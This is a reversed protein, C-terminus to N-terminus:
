SLRTGEKLHEAVSVPCITGDLTEASLLMGESTGFRMKRPALNSVVLVKHNVIEEPKVWERIGSFIQRTGLEGMSVQLKLLKDSGEVLEANVVTGVRIEVRAFDEIAILSSAKGDKSEGSPPADTGAKPAKPKKNKETPEAAQGSAEAPFKAMELEIDIRDYLRPATGFQYGVRTDYFRTLNQLSGKLSSTNEGLSELLTKMKEPFFAATLFGVIRLVGVSHALVNELRIKNEPTEVKLLSWPKQEAIYKDTLGILEWIKQLADSLRYEDFATCVYPVLQEAQVALLKESEMLFDKHFPPIRKDCYKELMGLTRSLLNGIGNALDANFRELASRITVDLDEGPNAGRFIINTFTDAGFPLFDDPSVVNGLSKSMKHGGSLLWGTVLLKPVKIKLSLCIAPWFIGHFKLIDKGLIHTCNQWYTSTRAQEVGGVGTVYNPLADFWVYAVHEKDFPLEIGWSTRSKPRSISLDRDLVEIMALLENIYRPNAVVKGDKILEKLQERYKTTKFFYNGEKRPETKRKHILCNKEADMESLPLFDECAVCYHGEHEGFYIDGNEHCTTLIQQVNKRHEKSTTRMFVDFSLGFTEFSHRWSAALDDVYKQPTLGHQAAAEAVKEGHEDMGTLTRTDFGRHEYHNKLVNLLTTAYIHGIHPKGSAYYIPTTFFRSQTTM